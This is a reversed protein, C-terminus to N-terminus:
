VCRLYKPFALSQKTSSFLLFVDGYSTRKLCTIVVVGGNYSYHFYSYRPCLM